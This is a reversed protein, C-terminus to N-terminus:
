STLGQWWSKLLFHQEVEEVLLKNNWPKTYQIAGFVDLVVDAVGRLEEKHKAYAELLPMNYLTIKTPDLLTNVRQLLMDVTPIQIAPTEHQRATMLLQRISKYDASDIVIPKKTTITAMHPSFEALGAGIEVIQLDKYRKEFDEPIFNTFRYQGITRATIPIDSKDTLGIDAQGISLRTGNCEGLFWQNTVTYNCGNENHRFVRTNESRETEGM